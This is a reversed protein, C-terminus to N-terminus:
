LARLAGVIVFFGFLAALGALVYFLKYRKNEKLDLILAPLALIGTVVFSLYAPFIQVAFPVENLIEDDLEERVVEETTLFDKGAFYDGSLIIVSFIGLLVLVLAGIIRFPQKQEVWGYIIVVVASFILWQPLTYLLTDNM